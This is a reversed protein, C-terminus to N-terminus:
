GFRLLVRQNDTESLHSEGFPYINSYTIINRRHTYRNRIYLIDHEYLVRHETLPFWLLTQGKVYADEELPVGPPTDPVASPSPSLQGTLAETLTAPTTQAPQPLLSVTELYKKTTQQIEKAQATFQQSLVRGLNTPQTDVPYLKDDKLTLLTKTEAPASLPAPM